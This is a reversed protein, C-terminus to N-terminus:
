KKKHNFDGLKRGFIYYPIDKRMYYRMYSIKGKYLIDFGMKRFFTKANQSMTRFHIGRIGLEKLYDLYKLILRSGIGMGRCGEDLNVHLTAPYEKSFDPTRFEGKLFSIFYFFIFKLTNKKIFVKSTLVRKILAPIIRCRFIKDKIKVNNSGTLYGIVKGESVAVFCSEPEYDTYYRTLVDAILERDNIFMESPYGLFSTKVSIDRVAQRDKERYKRINVLKRERKDRRKRGARTIKWCKVDKPL